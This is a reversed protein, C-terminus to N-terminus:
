KNGKLTSNAWEECDNWWSDIALYILRSISEINLKKCAEKCATETSLKYCSNFDAYPLHAMDKSKDHDYSEEKIKMSLLVAKAVVEGIASNVQDKTEKSIKM